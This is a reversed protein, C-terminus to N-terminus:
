VVVFVSVFISVVTNKGLVNLKVIELADPRSALVASIMRRVLVCDPSPLFVKSLAAPRGVSRGLEVGESALHPLSTVISCALVIKPM